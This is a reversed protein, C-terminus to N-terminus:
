FSGLKNTAVLVIAKRADNGTSELLRNAEAREIATPYRGITLM